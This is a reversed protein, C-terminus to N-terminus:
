KAAVQEAVFIEVRRNNGRGQETNNDAVPERAGRGETAIRARAVGKGVLYDRAAEARDVSLPNNIADSGTSDARWGPRHGLGGSCIWNPADGM